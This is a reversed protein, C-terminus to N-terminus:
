LLSAGYQSTTEYPNEGETALLKLHLPSRGKSSVNVLVFDRESDGRPIRLVHESAMVRGPCNRSFFHSDSSPKLKIPRTSAFKSITSALGDAQFSPTKCRWPGCVDPIKRFRTAGASTEFPVVTAFGAWGRAGVGEM